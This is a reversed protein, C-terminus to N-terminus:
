QDGDGIIEFSPARLGRGRTSLCLGPVLEEPDWLQQQRPHFSTFVPQGRSAALQTLFGLSLFAQGQPLTSCAQQSGPHKNWHRWGLAAQSSLSTGSGLSCTHPVLTFASGSGLEAFVLTFNPQTPLAKSEEALPLM